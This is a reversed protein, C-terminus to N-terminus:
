SFVRVVRQPTPLREVGPWKRSLIEGGKGVYSIIVSTPKEGEFNVMLRYKGYGGVIADTGEDDTRVEWGLDALARKIDERKESRHAMSRKEKEGRVRRSHKAAGHVRVPEQVNRAHQNKRIRATALLRM